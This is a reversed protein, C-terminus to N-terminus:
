AKLTADIDQQKLKILNKAEDIAKDKSPYGKDSSLRLRTRTENPAHVTVEFFVEEGRHLLLTSVNGSKDNIVTANLRSKKDDSNLKTEM